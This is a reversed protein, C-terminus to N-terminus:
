GREPVFHRYSSRTVPNMVGPLPPEGSNSFDDGWLLESFPIGLARAREVVESKPIIWHRTKRGDEGKSREQKFRLQGIVKGVGTETVWTGGERTRVNVEEEEAISTAADRIQASTLQAPDTPTEAAKRLMAKVVLTVLDTNSTLTDREAQYARMVTRLRAELGTVGHRDLLRGVALLARWPEFERGVVDEERNLEYWVGSAEPLLWLALAWLDDQLQRQTFGLGAGEPEPDAWRDIDIPDANGRHSDGTRILPIIISRSELARDPLRLATFGRPCYANIWKTVWVEGVKDKIPIATGKRNGALFLERKEPDFNKDNLREADDFLLTAGSNALDRLAAFSGSATLLQGLYSTLTWCIGWQTKGSGATASNPWPYGLVTFAPAFWTSFSFAASLECMEEQGVLSHGFDLFRDFVQAVKVFTSLPDPREGRAFATFGVPGWERGERPPEPLHVPIPLDALTHAQGPGFAEGDDRMAFLTRETRQLVDNENSASRSTSRVYLWTAAYARGAVLDLPRTLALPTEDLLEFSEIRHADGDTAALWEAAPVLMARLDDITHGSALYDDVGVKDGSPLEALRWDVIHVEAGKQEMWRVLAEVAKRVAPKTLVDSDYACIVARPLPNGGADQGKWPIAYLDPLAGFGRWGDVGPTSVTVVGASTLADAKKAGETWWLPQGTDRLGPLCRPPVDLRLGVGAPQVYRIVSGAKDKRVRPRDYRIVPPIEEGSVDHQPIVLAPLCETWKQTGRFKELAILGKVDDITYYGREAIVDPAIASAVTLTEFHHPALTRAPETPEAM